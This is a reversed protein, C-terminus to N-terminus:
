ARQQWSSGHKGRRFGNTRFHCPCRKAACVCVLRAAAAHALPAPNPRPGTPSPSRALLSTDLPTQTPGPAATRTSPSSITITALTQIRPPPSPTSAPYLSSTTTTTSLSSTSSTFTSSSSSRSSMAPHQHSPHGARSQKPRDTTKSKHSVALEQHLHLLSDDISQFDDSIASNWFSSFHISSSPLHHHINLFLGIVFPCAWGATGSEKIRRRDVASRYSLHVIPGGVLFSDHWGKEQKAQTGPQRRPPWPASTAAAATDLVGM